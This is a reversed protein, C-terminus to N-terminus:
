AGRKRAHARVKSAGRTHPKTHPKVPVEEPAAETAAEQPEPQPEPFPEVPKTATKNPEAGNTNEAEAREARERTLEQLSLHGFRKALGPLHLILSSLASLAGTAAARADADEFGRTDSNFAMAIATIHQFLNAHAVQCAEAARRLMESTPRDAMLAEFCENSTEREEDKAAPASIRPGLIGLSGLQQIAVAFAGDLAGSTADDIATTGAALIMAGIHDPGIPAGANRGKRALRALVAASRGIVRVNVSAPELHAGEYGPLPYLDASSLRLPDREARKTASTSTSGNPNVRTRNTSGNPNVRTRNM